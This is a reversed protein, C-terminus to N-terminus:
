QLTFSLALSHFPLTKESPFTRENERIKCWFIFFWPLENWIHNTREFLSKMPSKSLYAKHVHTYILSFSLFSLSSLHFSIFLVFLVFENRIWTKFFDSGKWKVGNNFYVFLNRLLKQRLFVYYLNRWKSLQFALLVRQEPSPSNTKWYELRFHSLSYINQRRCNEARIEAHWSCSKISRGRTASFKRIVTSIQNDSKGTIKYKDIRKRKLFFLYYRIASTIELLLFNLYKLKIKNRFDTFCYNQMESWNPCVDKIWKENWWM